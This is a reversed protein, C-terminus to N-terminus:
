PPLRRYRIVILAVALAMVGATTACAGVGVSIGGVIYGFVFAFPLGSAAAALARGAVRRLYGPRLDARKRAGLVGSAVDDHAPQMVSIIGQEVRTRVVTFLAHKEDSM